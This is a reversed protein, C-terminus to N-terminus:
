SRRPLDNRSMIVQKRGEPVSRAPADGPIDPRQIAGVLVLLM